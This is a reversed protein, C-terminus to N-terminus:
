MEILLFFHTSNNLLKVKFKLGAERCPIHEDTEPDFSFLCRVKLQFYILINEIM